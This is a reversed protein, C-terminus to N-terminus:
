PRCMPTGMLFSSMALGVCGMRRGAAGMAAVAAKISLFLFLFLYAPLARHRGLIDDRPKPHMSMVDDGCSVLVTKAMIVTVLRGANPSLSTEPM